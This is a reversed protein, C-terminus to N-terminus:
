HARRSAQQEGREYRTAIRQAHRVGGIACMSKRPAAATGVMSALTKRSWKQEPQAVPAHRRGGGSELTCTGVPDVAVRLDMAVYYIESTAEAVM